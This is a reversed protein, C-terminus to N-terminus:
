GRRRESVLLGIAVGLLVGGVLNLLLFVGASLEIGTATLTM